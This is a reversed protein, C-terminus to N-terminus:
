LLALMQHHRELVVRKVKLMKHSLPVGPLPPTEYKLLKKFKQRIQQDSKSGVYM